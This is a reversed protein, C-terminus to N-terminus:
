QWEEWDPQKLLNGRTLHMVRMIVNLVDGLNILEYLPKCSHLHSAVTSFELRDNLEDHTNQSFSALSIIPLGDQPLNPHVELHSLPM